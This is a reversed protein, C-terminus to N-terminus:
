GVGRTRATRSSCCPPPRYRATAPGSAGASRPRSRSPTVSRPGRARLEERISSLSTATEDRADRAATLQEDSVGVAASLRELEERETAVAVAPDDPVGLPFHPAVVEQAAGRDAEATEIDERLQKLLDERGQAEARKTAAERQATAHEESARKAEATAAALLEAQETVAADLRQARDRIEEVSGGALLAVLDGRVKEVTTAATTHAERAAALEQGADNAARRAEELQAEARVLEEHEADPVRPHEVLPRSCVPCPDGPELGTAVTAVLHERELAVMARQASELADKAPGEAAAATELRRGANDLAEQSGEIQRAATTARDLQNAAQRQEEETQALRTRASEAGEEAADLRPQAAESQEEATTALQELTRLEGELEHQRTRRQELTAAAKAANAIAAEIVALQELTGCRAILAQYDRKREALASQAVDVAESAESLQGALQEERAQAEAYTEKAASLEHDVLSMDDCRGALSKAAIDLRVREAEAIEAERVAAELAAARKEAAAALEALEDRRASTADRYQEDLIAQTTEIRTRLEAARSRARRGIEAYEGLGLLDTLIQRRADREGKLFRHFEGQPLVVARTFAEFPLKLLQEIRSNVERVGGGDVVSRWSGGEARELTATQAGSRPLRRAVQYREGDLEFEFRVRSEAIGHSVLDRVSHTGARPVKGYLAFIIADLM